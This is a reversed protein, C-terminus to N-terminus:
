QAKKKLAATFDAFVKSKKETLLKQGFEAKEKTFKAEDTPKISKLKIIYYGLENSFIKSPENTKLKIANDWFIKAAGLDKIQDSSKFFITTKEKIKCTKPSKACENIVNEAMKRSGEKILMDKIQDKVQILEPIYAEKDKSAPVKFMTKNKKFFESIEKEGPKIKKTFDSSFSAFYDINLEQNLKLYEQRIQEDSIKVEATVQQYLKSLILSQRMQEEFTRPQLRFAYRLTETYIKNNFGSKDQFYPTNQILEITEKDTVNIKRNKAEYLLILREWAQAPLNLYKEIEPLKDGFQMIASTKVAALSEKYELNSIKKGFIKGIAANEQKNRTGEGFGWLTFAPVIIIALAIWIKRATKKNRLIKLM